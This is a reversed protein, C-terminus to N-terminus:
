LIIVGKSELSYLIDEDLHKVTYVMIDAGSLAGSITTGGSAAVAPSSDAISGFGGCSSSSSCVSRVGASSSEPPIEKMILARKRRKMTKMMKRKRNRGPYEDEPDSFVMTKRKRSRPIKESSKEIEMIEEVDAAEQFLEGLTAFETSELGERINDNLGDRALQILYPDDKTTVIEHSLFFDKYEAVSMSGQNIDLVM